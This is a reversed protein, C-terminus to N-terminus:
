VVRAHPSRGQDCTCRAQHRKTWVQVIAVLLEVYDNRAGMEQNSEKGKEQAQGDEENRWIGLDKGCTIFERTREDESGTAHALLSSEFHPSLHRLCYDALKRVLTVDGRRAPLEFSGFRLFSPAARCLVAGQARKFTGSNKPDSDRITASEGSSCVSVAVAAPLGLGLFAQIDIVVISRDSSKTMTSVMIQAHMLVLFSIGSVCLMSELFSVESFLFERLCAGLVAPDRCRSLLRAPSVSGYKPTLRPLSLFKLRLM